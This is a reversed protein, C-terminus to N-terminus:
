RDFVPRSTRLREPSSQWFRRYCHHHPKSRSCRATLESPSPCRPRSRRRRWRGYRSGSLSFRAADESGTNFTAARPGRRCVAPASSLSRASQDLRGPIPDAFSPCYSLPRDRSTWPSFTSRAWLSYTLLLESVAPGLAASRPLLVSLHARETARASPPASTEM